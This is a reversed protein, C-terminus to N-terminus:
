KGLYLRRALLEPLGAALISHAAAEVDYKVRHFSVTRSQEDFVCYAARWDGDRPQGVSGPNILYHASPDLQITSTQSLEGVQDIRHVNRQFYAFGGQRHTHGFFNVPGPLFQEMGRADCEQILYLDEDVPSGHMLWAEGYALPGRPMNRLYAKNPETLVGSTWGLSATAVANYGETDDLGVSVKDHNGRVVAKVFKECWDVV